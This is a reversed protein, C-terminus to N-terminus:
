DRVKKSLKDAYLMDDAYKFAKQPNDKMMSYGKSLSIDGDKNLRNKLVLLRRIIEKESIGESLVAFEDGGIRFVSYEPSPFVETLIKAVNKLVADGALHGQTDNTIKFDDVDFLLVGRSKHKLDIKNKDTYLNYANRNYVGTLDDTIALRHWMNAEDVYQIKKTLVRIKLLLKLIIVILVIAIVTTLGLATRM